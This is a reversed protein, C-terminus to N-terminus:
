TMYESTTRPAGNRTVEPADGTTDGQTDGQVSIELNNDVQKVRKSASGQTDAGEFNPAESYHQDLSAKSDYVESDEYFDALDSEYFSDGDSDYEAPDNGSPCVFEHCWRCETFDYRVAPEGCDCLSEQSITLMHQTDTVSPMISVKGVLRRTFNCKKDSHFVYVDHELRKENAEAEMALFCRICLWVKRILSQRIIDCQCWGDNEDAIRHLFRASMKHYRRPRCDACYRRKRPNGSMELAKLMEISYEPSTPYPRCGHDVAHDRSAEADIAFEIEHEVWCDDLCCFGGDPSHYYLHFRCNQPKDTSLCELHIQNKCQM